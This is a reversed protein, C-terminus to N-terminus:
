VKHRKLERLFERVQRSSGQYGEAKVLKYIETGTVKPNEILAFMILEEYKRLSSKRKPSNIKELEAYSEITLYRTVTNRHIGLSNAIEKKSWGARNLMKIQSLLRKRDSFPNEAVRNLQEDAILDAYKAWKKQQQALNTVKFSKCEWLLPVIPYGQRQEMQEARRYAQTTDLTSEIRVYTPIPIVYGNNQYFAECVDGTRLQGATKPFSFLYINKESGAATLYRGRYLWVKTLSSM